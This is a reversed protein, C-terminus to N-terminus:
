RSASSPQDGGTMSEIVVPLVRATQEAAAETTALLDGLTACVDDAAATELDRAAEVLAVAGVAASTSLLAHTVRRVDALNGTDVASRLAALRVPLERLYSRVVTVLLLDDGLEDGLLTLVTRDVSAEDPVATHDDGPVRSTRGTSPAADTPDHDGRGSSASDGTPVIAGAGGLVGDLARELTALDVPKVLFADMGAGRARREDDPLASATVAIVPTRSGGTRQEYERIRRAVDLGDTGPLQCDLVVADFDGDRLRELAVLGDAIVVAVHGLRELQREIVLQSTPDDEVVLIRRRRGDPIEPAASPGPANPPPAHVEVDFSFTSGRGPESEVRLTGGLLGVLRQAITLGLGTGGASGGPPGVQAFPEFVRQLDNAAIGVGTDAVSVSLRWGDSGDPLPAAMITVRVEGAPTFKVANGVLNHLIQRFRLPDGQVLVPVGPLVEVDLRLGRASAFPGFLAYLDRVVDDLSFAESLLEVRGAEIKSFDLLDDLVLRMSETARRISIALEREEDALDGTLLLETLGLIGHIPTRLEHSVSAVLENRAQLAGLAERHAARLEEAARVQETIDRSTTVVARVDDDHLLNVSQVDQIVWHGEAHRIRYQTRVTQGRSNRLEELFADYAARDDPHIVSRVSNANWFDQPYGLDFARGTLAVVREDSDVLSVSDSINELMVRYRRASGEDATAAPPRPGAPRLEVLVGRIAPDHLLNTAKAEVRVAGPGGALRFELPVAPGPRDVTNAFAVIAFDRDDPHLLEFVERGLVEGVPIGAIRAAADSAFDIRGDADLVLVGVDLHALVARYRDPNAGESM